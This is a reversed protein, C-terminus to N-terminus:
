GIRNALWGYLFAEQSPRTEALRVYHAGQLAEVAKLLVDEGAAGRKRFFAHLALLTAPGVRRDVTLDGYDSGNRNLANLARQLFGAATGTGMNIGTDFLESALKPAIESIMDFAPVIWYLRKYIAAADSQPLHRMDDMYGQRRAVTETIGWRTPGGRDAPHDVYGGEREIVDEILRDIQCESM